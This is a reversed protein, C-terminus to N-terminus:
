RPPTVDEPLMRAGEKPEWMENRYGSIDSSVHHQTRKLDTLEDDTMERTTGDTLEEERKFPIMQVIPTGAPITGEFTGGTWRFPFNIYNFYRDIDVVGAFPEFRRETRNLPPIFLASYGEPAKMAWYNNWKLIPEDDPFAHGVQEPSHSEIITRDLKWETSVDNETVEFHVDAPTRLIWGRTMADFFPACRKVTADSLGKGETRQELHVYWAPMSRTAPVPEPIADYLEEETIFEILDSNDDRRVMGTLDKVRESVGSFGVM